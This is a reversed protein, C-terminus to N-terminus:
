QHYLHMPTAFILKEPKWPVRNTSAHKWGEVLEAKVNELYEQRSCENNDLNSTSEFIPTVVRPRKSVQQELDTIPPPPQHLQLVEVQVAPAIPTLLMAPEQAPEEDNNSAGVVPTTTTTQTTVLAPAIQETCLKQLAALTAKDNRLLRPIQNFTPTPRSTTDKIFPKWQQDLTKQERGAGLKIYLLTQRRYCPNRYEVMDLKDGIRESPALQQLFAILESKKLRLRTDYFDCAALISTWQEKEIRFLRCIGDGSDGLVDWWFSDARDHLSVIMRALLDRPAVNTSMERRRKGSTVASDVSSYENM